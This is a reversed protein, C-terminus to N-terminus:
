WRGRQPKRVRDDTSGRTAHDVAQESRVRQLARVPEGGHDGRVAHEQELERKLPLEDLDVADEPRAAEAM